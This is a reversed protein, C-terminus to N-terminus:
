PVIVTPISAAQALGLPVSGFVRASFSNGGARGVFIMEAGIREASEAVVEVVSGYRIEGESTVGAAQTRDVAPDIVLKQAREMESRRRAHREELEQPTLFSYPSWELVHLIHLRAGSKKAQATAYDLVHHREDGEYAVVYIEQTM